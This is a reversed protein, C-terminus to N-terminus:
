GGIGGHEMGGGGGVGTKAAGGGSVSGDMSSGSFARVKPVQEQLSMPVGAPPECMLM